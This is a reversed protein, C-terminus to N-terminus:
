AGALLKIIKSVDILNVKGNADYDANELNIEVSWGALYRIMRNVDMLSIKGDMNADGRLYLVINVPETDVGVTIPYEGTVHGEKVARLTYSGSDVGEIAFAANNGRVVTEYAAESMGEAILQLTIDDTDSGYSTVTGSVTCDGVPIDKYRAVIANINCEPMIFSTTPSYPDELTVVDDSVSWKDFVEGEDPEDATLTIKTGPAARTIKYGSENRADGYYVTMYYETTPADPMTYSIVYEVCGKQPQALVQEGTQSNIIGPIKTIDKPLSYGEKIEFKVYLSYICGYQVASDESMYTSYNAGPKVEEWVDVTATYANSDGPIAIFSPASGVVPEAVTASFETVVPIATFTSILRIDTGMSSYWSPHTVTEVSEGNITGTSVGTIANAKFMYGGKPMVHIYYNYTGGGVFLKDSTLAIGSPSIVTVGLDIVHETAVKYTFDGVKTGGYPANVDTIDVNAIFPDEHDTVTLVGGNAPITAEYLNYKRISSFDKEIGNRYIATEGFARGISNGTDLVIDGYATCNYINITSANFDLAVYSSKSTSCLSAGNVYCEGSGTMKLPLQAAIRCEEMYIMKSIRDTALVGCNKYESNEATDNVVYADDFIELWSEYKNDYFVATDGDSATTKFRITGGGERDAIMLHCKVDFMYKDSSDTRRILSHGNLNLYLNHSGSSFTELYYDSTSDEILIDSNLTIYTASDNSSDSIWARIKMAERLEDYTDVLFPDSIRDGNGTYASATTSMTPLMGLVMILALFMSLLRKKNKTKTNNM